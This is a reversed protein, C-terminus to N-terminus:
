RFTLPVSAAVLTVSAVALFALGGALVCLTGAVGAVVTGACPWWTVCGTAPKQWLSDPWAAAQIEDQRFTM